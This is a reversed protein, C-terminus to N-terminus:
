HNKKVEYGRLVLEKILESDEATAITTNAYTIENDTVRITTGSEGCIRSSVKFSGNLKVEKSKALDTLEELPEDVSRFRPDDNGYTEKYHFTITEDCIDFAGHGEGDKIELTENLFAELSDDDKYDTAEVKGDIYIIVGM